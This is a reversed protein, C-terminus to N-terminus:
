RRMGWFQGAAPYRKGSNLILRRGLRAGVMAVALDVLKSSGRTQKGLSVGWQNVRRRANQVHLRLMPHGDHTLTSGGRVMRINSM